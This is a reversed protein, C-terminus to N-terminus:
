LLYIFNRREPEQTATSKKFIIITLYLQQISSDGDENGIFYPLLIYNQLGMNNEFLIHPVYIKRVGILLNSIDSM